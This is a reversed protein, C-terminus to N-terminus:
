MDDLMARAAKFQKALEEMPDKRADEAAKSAETIAMACAVAETHTYSLSIPLSLVGKQAAVEAALGHLRVFPRGNAARCVEIDQPRVGEAFGTGLAKCVAERAAFRTAYHIAPRSKSDCYAQEEESYLSRFARTRQLIGEIRDIEVVDVGLGVRGDDFTASAVTAASPAVTSAAVAAALTKEDM